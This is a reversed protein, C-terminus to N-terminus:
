YDMWTGSMSWRKEDKKRPHEELTGDISWGYEMMHWGYELMSWELMNWVGYETNSCTEYEVWEKMHMWVDGMNWLCEIMNWANELWRGCM